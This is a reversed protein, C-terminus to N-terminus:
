IKGSEWLQLKGKEFVAEADKLWRSTLAYECAVPIEGTLEKMSDCLIADIVKAQSTHDSDIPIEIIVEDHVFAVCRFGERYLRSLAIKAGDAALSQFPHNKAQSYGVRGRLRGTLTVSPGHLLDKTLQTGADRKALRNMLRPNNNLAILSDWVRSKFRKSYQEGSAKEKGAVIRKAAGLFGPSDFVTKVVFSSNQLNHALCDIANDALYRSLEPYVEEILSKRFAFAEEVSLEVGYTSKAYAVLSRAGLGGPIGFNLAKARQRLNRANPLRSFEETSLGEFMAATHAHPDVGEVIVEALRSTGFKKLCIAALTRLEIFSYDIAIFYHGKSPVIMERFGGGRPLQQINPSRCSTRGTRVLTTYRPHIRDSELGGFFQFLKSREELDVWLAILKSDGTYDKWYKISTTTQRTKGTQPPHVELSQAIQDLIVIQQKRDISPKGSDALQLEGTKRSKKFLGNAEPLAQIEDVISAIEKALKQKTSTLQAQDISMGNRSIQSLAISARLQLSETLIGFRDRYNPLLQREFPQVLDSAIDSLRHWLRWTVISDAIAYNFFGDEVQNWPVGIIEGFRLRFPDDKDLTLGLYHEAVSGLDRFTPMEDSKGLRVLSDLIMTDHLRGADCVERWRESQIAKDIVEYDFTANHAVFHCDAHLDIFANLNKPHILRHRSGDSATALALRPIEHQQIVETETDIAIPSFLKESGDWISFTHVENGLRISRVNEKKQQPMLLDIFVQKHKRLSDKIEPTLESARGVIELKGESSIRPRLGGNALALSLASLDM